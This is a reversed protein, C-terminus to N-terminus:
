SLGAPLRFGKVKTQISWVQKEGVIYMVDGNKGGFTVSVPFQPFHVTGVYVGTKDWIQVGMLTAEYIRGETDVASGDARSDFRKAPDPDSMVSGLLNYKAFKRKNTLSGDPQVDYAYLFDEGPSLYTNNVYFTRGDPSIEVGNPMAYEGPGIVVKATGDPALYYIQKGPQTKADGTFQPDSVYIGGRADMVLDNPGDIRTGNVKDLLVRLVKGTNPNMLEVKHGFMDCVVLNGEKIAITGNTMAGQSVVKWKGDPTMAILRGKSIDATFDNNDPDKFWMDSFYLKGNLWTPGETFTFADALKTPKADAPIVQEYLAQQRQAFQMYDPRVPWFIDLVDSGEPSMTAGHAMGSPLYVMSNDKGTMDTTTDMVIEHANGRLSTMFQDEPHVHMAFASNPDMRLFSLMVNKGWVLRSSAAARKYPLSPDPPVVPALQLDALAYVQGAQLNPTVGQDPFGVKADAALTVGALKLLDLRVPSYVELVKAGNPGATLTRTMGPTMYLVTGKAMELPKGDLTCTASGDTINSFLEEGLKQEPYVAGKDMELIELMEGKGWTLRAKVGPAIDVVPVSSRGFVAGPTVKIPVDTTPITRERLKIGKQSVIQANKAKWSDDSSNSACGALTMMGISLLALGSRGTFDRLNKSM